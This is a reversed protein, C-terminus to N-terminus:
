PMQADGAQHIKVAAHLGRAKFARCGSRALLRLIVKQLMNSYFIYSSGCYKSPSTANIV